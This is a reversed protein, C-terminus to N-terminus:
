YVTKAIANRLFNVSREKIHDKRKIHSSRNFTVNLDQFVNNCFSEIMIYVLFGNATGSNDRGITSLLKRRDDENYIAYLNSVVSDILLDLLDYLILRSQILWFSRHEREYTYVHPQLGITGHVPLEKLCYVIYKHMLCISGQIYIRPFPVHATHSNHSNVMFCKINM